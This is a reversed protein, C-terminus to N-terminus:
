YPGVVKNTSLLVYTGEINNNSCTRCQYICWGGIETMWTSNMYELLNTCANPLNEAQRQLYPLALSRIIKEPLIALGMVRKIFEVLREDNNYLLVLDIFIAFILRFVFECNHM